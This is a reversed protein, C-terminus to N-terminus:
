KNKFVTGYNWTKKIELFEPKFSKWIGKLAIQPRFNLVDVEETSSFELVGLTHGRSNVKQRNRMEDISELFHEISKANQLESEVFGRFDKDQTKVSSIWKNSLTNHSRGVRLARVVEFGFSPGTLPKFGQDLDENLASTMVDTIDFAIVNSSKENWNQMQLVFKDVSKRRNYSVYHLKVDM